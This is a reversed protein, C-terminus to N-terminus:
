ENYDKRLPLIHGPVKFSSFYNNPKNAVCFVPNKPGIALNNPTTIFAMKLVSKALAKALTTKGTGPIDDLLIHGRCLMATIIFRIQEDKGFIVKKVNEEIASAVASIKECYM